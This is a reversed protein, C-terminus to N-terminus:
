QDQDKIWSILNKQRYNHQLERMKYFKTVYMVQMLINYSDLHKCTRALFQKILSKFSQEMELELNQKKARQDQKIM